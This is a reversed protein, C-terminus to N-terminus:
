AGSRRRRKGRADATVRSRKPPFGSSTARAPFGWATSYTRAGARGVPIRELPFALEEPLFPDRDPDRDGALREAFGSIEEEVAAPELVALFAGATHDLWGAPM